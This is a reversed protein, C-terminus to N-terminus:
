RSKIKGRSTKAGKHNWSLLSAPKTAYCYECLEVRVRVYYGQRWAPTAFDYNYIRFDVFKVSLLM